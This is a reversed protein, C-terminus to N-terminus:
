ACEGALGLPCGPEALDMVAPLVEERFLGAAPSYNLLADAAL